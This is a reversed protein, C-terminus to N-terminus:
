GLLVFFTGEEALTAYMVDMWERKQYSANDLIVLKFSEERLREIHCVHIARLNRATHRYDDTLLVSYTETALQMAAHTHGSVRHGKIAITRFERAFQAAGIHERVSPDVFSAEKHAMLAMAVYMSSMSM